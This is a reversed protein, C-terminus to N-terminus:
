DKRETVKLFPLALIAVGELIWQGIEALSQALRNLIPLFM